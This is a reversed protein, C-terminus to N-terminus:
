ILQIKLTWFFGFTETQLGCFVNVHEDIMLFWSLVASVQSAVTWDVLM